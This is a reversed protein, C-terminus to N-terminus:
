PETTACIEDHHINKASRKDRHNERGTGGAYIAGSSILADMMRSTYM